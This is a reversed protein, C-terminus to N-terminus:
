TGDSAIMSDSALQFSCCGGAGQLARIQGSQRLDALPGDAGFPGSAPAFPALVAGLPSLLPLPSKPLAKMPGASFRQSTFLFMEFKIGNNKLKWAQAINSLKCWMMKQKEETPNYDYECKEVDDSIKNFEM